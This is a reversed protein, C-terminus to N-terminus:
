CKIDDEMFKTLDNEIYEMLKMNNYLDETWENILEMKRVEHMDLEDNENKEILDLVIQKIYDLGDVIFIQEDKSNDEEEELARKSLTYLLKNLTKRNM